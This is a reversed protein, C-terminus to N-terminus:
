GFIFIVLSIAASLLLYAGIIGYVTWRESQPREFGGRITRYAGYACAFTVLLVFIMTM